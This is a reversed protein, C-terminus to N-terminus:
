PVFAGVFILTTFAVLGAGCATLVIREWEPRRVVLALAMVLPFAALGYREFSGLGRGALALVIMALSYAGYSAPLRRFAIVVLVVFFVVWPAHLGDGLREGGLLGRASDVFRFAPNEWGGRLGEVNQLRVPLLWDGTQRQVWVLYGATGVLPAGVAALRALLEPLGVTRVNRMAEIAAPVMLVLGTPRTLGALVGAGAAWAWRRQRLALFDAMALVLFLPEAYTLVLVVAPPLLALLWPARDAAAADGTELLVLRRILGGAFLAGVQTVLVLALGVQGFLPLAVLRGLAPFLPFFRYAERALGGYGYDGLDRYFAGDWAFIGQEIQFPIAGPRLEDSVIVAVVFGAGVLVRALAWAPLAVWLDRAFQKSRSM